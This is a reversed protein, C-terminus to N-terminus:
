LIHNTTTENKNSNVFQADFRVLLIFSIYLSFLAVNPTWWLLLDPVTDQM